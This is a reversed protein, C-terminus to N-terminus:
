SMYVHNEPFYSVNKVTKRMLFLSIGFTICENALLSQAVFVAVHKPINIVSTM